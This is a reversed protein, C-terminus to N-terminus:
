FTSYFNHSSCDFVVNLILCEQPIFHSYKTSNVSGRSAFCTKYMVFIEVEDKEAVLQSNALQLATHQSSLSSVQSQLTAVTVQLKANDSHFSDASSQLVALEQRLEECQHSLSLNDSKLSEVDPSPEKSKNQEEASAQQALRCQRCLETVEEKALIERVARVVEPSSV